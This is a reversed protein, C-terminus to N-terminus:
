LDVPAQPTLTITAGDESVGVVFQDIWPIFISRNGRSIELLMPGGSDAFGVVTGIGEVTGESQQVVRAGKLDDMYWGPEADFLSRDVWVPQGALRAAREASEIGELEALYANKFPRLACITYPIALAPSTGIWFQTLRDGTSVDQSHPHIRM